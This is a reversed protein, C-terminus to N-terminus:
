KHSTKAIRGWFRHPAPQDGNSLREWRTSFVEYDPTIAFVTDGCKPWFDSVSGFTIVRIKNETESRELQLVFYSYNPYARIAATDGLEETLNPIVTDLLGLIQVLANSAIQPHSRRDYTRNKAHKTWIISWPIGNIEVHTGDQENHDIIHFM